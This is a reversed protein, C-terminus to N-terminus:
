ESALVQTCGPTPCCSAPTACLVSSSAFQNVRPGIHSGIGLATSESDRPSSFAPTSVDSVVSHKDFTVM